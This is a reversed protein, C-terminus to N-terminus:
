DGSPPPASQSPASPQEPETPETSRAKDSVEPRGFSRNPYWEKLGWFGRKPNVFDGVDRGRRHLVSSITRSSAVILGGRELDAMIDAPKMLKRRRSFVVRAAEHVKMGLFEGETPPADQADAEDLSEAGQTSGVSVPVPSAAALAELRVIMRDIEDRQRRLDDIVVVYANSETSM